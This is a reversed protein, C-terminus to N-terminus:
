LNFLTLQEYVPHQKPYYGCSGHNDLNAQPGQPDVTTGGHLGCFSGKKYKHDFFDYCFWACKRCRM